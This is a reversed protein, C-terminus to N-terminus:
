KTNGMEKLMKQLESTSGVFMANTVNNTTKVHEQNIVKMKGQLYVLKDTIDAVNKILNGAVEYARPHQSENAIDLIGQIADQGREILNYYNERSYKYDNDVDTKDKDEVRPVLPKFEKKEVVANETATEIGLIENVKELCASGNGKELSITSRRRLFDEPKIALEHRIAYIVEGIYTTTGTLFETYTPNETLIKLVNSYASGYRKIITSYIDKKLSYFDKETPYHTEIYHSINKIEGGFTPLSRTLSKFTTTEGLEKSVQHALKEAIVRYTTYKGGILSFFNNTKIIKEERSISGIHKKRKKILPRIGAFSSYIDNKTLSIKPFRINTENLLYDM